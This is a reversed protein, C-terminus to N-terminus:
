MGIMWHNSQNFQHANMFMESMDTVKNTNWLTLPQNFRTAGLFMRKMSTVKSIGWLNINEDFAFRRLFLESMNTVQSTNWVHIQGNRLTAEVSKWGVMDQHCNSDFCRWTSRLEISINQRYLCLDVVNYWILAMKFLMINFYFCHDHIQSSALKRQDWIHSVKWPHQFFTFKM